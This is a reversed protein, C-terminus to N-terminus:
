CCPVLLTLCYNEKNANIVCEQCVRVSSSKEPPELAEICRFRHKGPADLNVAGVWQEIGAVEDWVRSDGHSGQRGAKQSGLQHWSVSPPSSHYGLSVHDGVYRPNLSIWRNRLHGRLGPERPYM